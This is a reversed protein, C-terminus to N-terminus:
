GCVYGTLKMSVQLSSVDTQVIDFTKRVNPDTNYTAMSDNLHKMISNELDTHKMYGAIGVALEAVFIM